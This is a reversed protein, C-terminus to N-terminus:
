EYAIWEDIPVGVVKFSDDEDVGVWAEKETSFPGKFEIKDPRYIPDTPWGKGTWRWGVRYYVWGGVSFKHFREADKLFKEKSPKLDESNLDEEDESKLEDETKDESKVKKEDSKRKKNSSSSMKLFLIIIDKEKHYTFGCFIYCTFSILYFSACWRM